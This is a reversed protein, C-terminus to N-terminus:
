TSMIKRRRLLLKVLSLFFVLIYLIECFKFGLIKKFRLNFNPGMYFQVIHGPQDMYLVIFTFHSIEEQVFIADYLVM